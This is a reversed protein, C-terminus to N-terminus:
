HGARKRAILVASSLVMGIVGIMSILVWLRLSPFRPEGPERSVSDMLSTFEAKMRTARSGYEGQPYEAALEDLLLFAKTYNGGIVEATALHSLVTERVPFESPLEYAESLSAQAEEVLPENV